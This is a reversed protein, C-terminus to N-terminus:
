RFRPPRGSRSGNMDVKFGGPSVPVSNDATSLLGVDNIEFICRIFTLDLVSEGSHCFDKKVKKPPDASVSGSREWNVGSSSSPPPTM